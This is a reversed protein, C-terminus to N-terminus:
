AFFFHMVQSELFERDGTGVTKIVWKVFPHIVYFCALVLLIVIIFSLVSAYCFQTLVLLLITWSFMESILSSTLALQGNETLLLKLDSLIKAIEPFESSCSLTIGWFIAGRIHKNKDSPSLTKRGMDTVLIRYLGAGIPLTFIIGVIAVVMAKKNYCRAMPKLDVELGILFAYYVLTVAGMTEFPLM